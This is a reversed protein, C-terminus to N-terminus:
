NHCFQLHFQQHAMGVCATQHWRKALQDDNVIKGASNPVITKPRNKMMAAIESNQKARKAAACTGSLTESFSQNSILHFRRRRSLQRDGVVGGILM